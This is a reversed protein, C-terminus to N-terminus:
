AMKIEDDVDGDDMQDVDVLEDCGVGFCTIPLGDVKLWENIDNAM